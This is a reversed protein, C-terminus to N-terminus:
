RTIHCTTKNYQGPLTTPQTLENVKQEEILLDEQQLVEMYFKVNVKQEDILFDQQQLVEMYFKVNVKQEDILLDQQQPAEM